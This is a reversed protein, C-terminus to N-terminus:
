KGDSSPFMTFKLIVRVYESLSMDRLASDRKLRVLEDPSVRVNFQKLMPNKKKNM